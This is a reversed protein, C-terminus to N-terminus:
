PSGIRRRFPPLAQINGATSLSYGMPRCHTLLEGFMGDRPRRLVGQRGQRLAGADDDANGAPEVADRQQRGEM